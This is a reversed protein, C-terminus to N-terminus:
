NNNLDLEPWEATNKGINDIFIEDTSAEIYEENRDVKYLIWGRCTKKNVKFVKDDNRNDVQRFYERFKLPSAGEPATHNTCYKKYVCDIVENALRIFEHETKDRGEVLQFLEDYIDSYFRDWPNSKNLFKAISPMKVAANELSGYEKEIQDYAIKGLKMLLFFEKLQEDTMTWNVKDFTTLPKLEDQQIQRCTNKAATKIFAIRREFAGGDSIYIQKNSGIDFLVKSPISSTNRYLIKVPMDLTPNGTLGKFTEWLEGKVTPEDYPCIICEALSIKRKDDYRNAPNILQDRIMPYALDAGYYRHMAWRVLNKVTSKLTGGGDIHCKSIIVSILLFVAYYWAFSWKRQDKDMTDAWTKIIKSDKYELTGFIEMDADFLTKNFKGYSFRQDDEMTAALPNYDISPIKSRYHTLVHEFYLNMDLPYNGKTQFSFGTFVKLKKDSGETSFLDYCKVINMLGFQISAPLYDSLYKYILRTSLEDISMIDNVEIDLIGLFEKLTKKAFENDSKKHMIDGLTRDLQSRVVAVDGCDHSELEQQIVTLSRIQSTCYEDLEPLTDAKNKIVNDITEKLCQITLGGLLVLSGNPNKYFLVDQYRVLNKCWLADVTNFTNKPRWLPNVEVKSDMSNSQRQNVLSSVTKSLRSQKQKTVASRLVDEILSNFADTSIQARLVAYDECFMSSILTQADELGMSKNREKCFYKRSKSSYSWHGYVVKELADKVQATADVHDEVLLEDM